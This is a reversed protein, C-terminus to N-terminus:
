QLPHRLRASPSLWLRLVRCRESLPSPPLSSHLIRRLPSVSKSSSIPRCSSGALHRHYDCAYCVAPTLLGLLECKASPTVLLSLAV